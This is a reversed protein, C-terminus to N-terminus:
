ARLLKGVTRVYFRIRRARYRLANRARNFPAYPPQGPDWEFQCGHRECWRGWKRLLYHFDEFENGMNGGRNEEAILHDIRINPAPVTNWDTLFEIALSNDAGAGFWDCGEDYLGIQELTTKRTICVDSLYLPKWAGGPKKTKGITIVRSGYRMKGIHSAVIFLGTHEHTPDSLAKCFEEYWGETFRMDDNAVIIWEYRAKRIGINIFLHSSKRRPQWWARTGSLSLTVDPQQRLWRVKESDQLDSSVVQIEYADRPTTARISEVEEKLHDMRGYTATIISIKPHNM